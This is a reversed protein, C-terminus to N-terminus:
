IHPYGGLTSAESDGYPYAGIVFTRGRKGTTPAVIVATSKSLEKQQQIPPATDGEM